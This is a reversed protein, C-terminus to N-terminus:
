ESATSKNSTTQKALVAAVEAKAKDVKAADFHQTRVYDDDVDYYGSARCTALADQALKLANVLEQTTSPMCTFLAIPISLTIGHMVKKAVITTKVSYLWSSM